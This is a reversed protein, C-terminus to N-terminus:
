ALEESNDEKSLLFRFEQESVVDIDDGQSEATAFLVDRLLAVHERQRESIERFRPHFPEAAKSFAHDERVITEILDAFRTKTRVLKRLHEARNIMLENEVLSEHVVDLAGEVFLIDEVIKESFLSPILDLKFGDSITNIIENIYFLNEDYYITDDM